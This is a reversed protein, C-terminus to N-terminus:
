LYAYPVFVIGLSYIDAAMPEYPQKDNAKRVEPVQYTKTGVKSDSCEIKQNSEFHMVDEFDSLKAVM